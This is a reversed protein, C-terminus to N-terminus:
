VLAHYHPIPEFLADNHSNSFLLNNTVLYNPVSIVAVLRHCSM